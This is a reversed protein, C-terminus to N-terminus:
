RSNDSGLSARCSERRTRCHHIERSFGSRSRRDEQVLDGTGARLGSRHRVPTTALLAGGRAIHGENNHGAKLCLFLADLVLYCAASFAFFGWLFRSLFFIPLLCKCHGVGTGGLSDAVAPPIPETGTKSLLWPDAFCCRHALRCCFSLCFAFAFGAAARRAVTSLYGLGGSLRSTLWM